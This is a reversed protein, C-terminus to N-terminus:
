FYWSTVKICRIKKSCGKSKQEKLKKSFQIKVNKYEYKYKRKQVNKSIKSIEGSHSLYLICIVYLINSM